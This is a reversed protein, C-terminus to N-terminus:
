ARCARPPAPPRQQCRGAAAAWVVVPVIRPSTFSEVPRCAARAHGHRGDVLRVAQGALRHGILEAGVAERRHRRAEVGDLRRQGAELFGGAGVQPQGDVRLHRGREHELHAAQRLGDGDGFLRREDVRGLVDHAREDVGLLNGAQRELRAVEEVQRQQRRAHHASWPEAEPPWVSEIENPPM